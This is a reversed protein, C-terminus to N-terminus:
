RKGIKKRYNEWKQLQTVVNDQREQPFDNMIKVLVKEREDPSLQILKYSFRYLRFKSLIESKFDPDSELKNQTKGFMDRLVQIDKFYLSEVIFEDVTLTIKTHKPLIRSNALKAGAYTICFMAEDYSLYKELKEEDKVLADYFLQRFSEFIQKKEELIIRRENIMQPIISSWVNVEEQTKEQIDKDIKQIRRGLEYIEVQPPPSAVQQEVERVREVQRKLEDRFKHKLQDRYIDMVHILYTFRMEHGQDWDRPIFYKKRYLDRLQYMKEVDAYAQLLQEITLSNLEDPEDAMELIHSKAKEFLKYNRYEVYQKRKPNKPNLGSFGVNTNQTTFLTRNRDM